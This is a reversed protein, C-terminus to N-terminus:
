RGDFFELMTRSVIAPDSLFPAHAAGPGVALRGRHLARGCHRAAALPALSDREGHVVLADQTVDCLVDRLDTNQLLELGQRLTRTGPLAEGACAARLARLVAQATEDGHAQLALFRNLTGERDCELSEVFQQFVASELGESWDERQVFCPTTALLAIAEVQHPRAHAWALAIQGGMSWGAVLCRAPAREAISATLAEVTYPECRPSGCYGPLAPAEIAYHPALTCALAEFVGPNMGWGHLLVITKM